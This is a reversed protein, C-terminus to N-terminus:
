PGAMETVRTVKRALIREVPFSTEVFELNITPKRGAPAQRNRVIAMAYFNLDKSGFKVREGVSVDLTCVVAAGGISVNTTVTQEKYASTRDKRILTISIDLETWFRPTSRVQHSNKSPSIQWMGTSTTGSIYYCQMPDKMQEASLHEGVFAVGVFNLLEGDVNSQYCYQVLGVVPCTEVPVDYARLGDLMPMELSVLCGVKCPRSLYFSAGSKSMAVLRTAEECLEDANIHFKVTAKLEPPIDHHFTDLPEQDVVKQKKRM